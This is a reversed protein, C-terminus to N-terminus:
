GSQVQNSVFKRSSSSHATFDNKMRTLVILDAVLFFSVLDLQYTVFAEVFM